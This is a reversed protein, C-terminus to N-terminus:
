KRRRRTWIRNIRRKDRGNKKKKTECGLWEKRSSKREAKAKEAARRRERLRASGRRGEMRSNRERDNGILSLDDGLDCNGTNQNM